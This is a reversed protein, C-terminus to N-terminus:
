GHEKEPFNLRAYEGFMKAAAKDRASAAATESEFYGLHVKRNEPCIYACWKNAFRDWSVGVFKSSSGKASGSNHQNQTNTALRLNAWRNDSRVGNIHDIQHMRTLPQGTMIMYAARHALMLRGFINGRSYGSLNPCNLAITGAFSTDFIRKSREATYRGGRDEFYKVPRPKWWLEGTEPNYDLLDKLVEPTVGKQAKAEAM